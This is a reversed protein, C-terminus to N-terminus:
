SAAGPEGAGNARKRAARKEQPVGSAAGSEADDNFFDGYESEELKANLACMKIGLALLKLRGDSPEETSDMLAKIQSEVSDKLDGAKSKKTAM